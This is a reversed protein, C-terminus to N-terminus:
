LVFMANAKIALRSKEFDPASNMLPLREESLRTIDALPVPSAKSRFDRSEPFILDHELRIRGKCSPTSSKRM